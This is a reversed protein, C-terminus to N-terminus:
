MAVSGSLQDRGRSARAHSDGPDFLSSHTHAVCPTAGQSRQKRDKAEQLKLHLAAWKSDGLGRTDTRTEAPHM